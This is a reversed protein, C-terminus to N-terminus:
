IKNYNLINIVEVTNVEPVTISDGQSLSTFVATYVVTGAAALEDASAAEEPEDKTPKIWDPEPATAVVTWALNRSVTLTM